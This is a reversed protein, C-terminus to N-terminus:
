IFKMRFFLINRLRLKMVLKINEIIKHNNPLEKTVDEKKYKQFALLKSLIELKIIGGNINVDTTIINAILLFQFRPM